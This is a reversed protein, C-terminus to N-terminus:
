LLKLKGQENFKVNWETPQLLQINNNLIRQFELELGEDDFENTRHLSFFSYAVSKFTNVDIILKDKVLEQHAKFGAIYGYFLGNSYPVDILKGNKACEEAMKEVSYCNIVEEIESISLPKIDIFCTGVEDKDIPKTSHTIKKFGRDKPVSGHGFIQHRNLAPSYFWENAKIESDDVIIYHSESLKILKNM